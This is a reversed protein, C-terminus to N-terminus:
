VNGVRVLQERAGYLAAKLDLIATLHEAAVIECCSDLMRGLHRLALGSSRPYRDYRSGPGYVAHYGSAQRHVAKAIQTLRYEDPNGGPRIPDESVAASVALHIALLCEPPVGARRLRALAARAKNAPAMSLVDVVREVPGARDLLSRLAKLAAAIWFDDALAKLYRETAKRYPRLEAAKYTGKWFSGHRNRFQVHYRCHTWSLGHGQGAQTPRGCGPICCFPMADDDVTKIRRLFAAKRRRERDLHDLQTV